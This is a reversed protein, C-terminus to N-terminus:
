DPPRWGAATDRADSILRPILAGLAAERVRRAMRGRSQLVVSMRRDQRVVATVRPRRMRNYTRVARLLAAGLTAERVLSALTAADELTLGAGQGLHDPMAHAADGVLVTAGSGGAFGLARPLPRLERLEQQRVDNPDTAALLDGIPAPWTRFWRRLLALQTAPPEPRPAGPATATWYIGRRAAAVASSEGSLGAAAFRYGGGLVALDVPTDETLRPARYWPIIARWATCGASVVASGPDVWRRIASDVGDAAVVLDAEVMSRGDGVAPRDGSRLERVRVGTRIEVRDGLAAVLADHLAECPAVVSGDDPAPPCPRVLWRGDPRRVGAPPRASGIAALEGGLGLANLARVGNPWLTLATREARVREASELLTIQWGSRAMAGAVALGGLGAGVVVATRM